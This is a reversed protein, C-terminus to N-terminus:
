PMGRGCCCAAPATSRVNVFMYCKARFFCPKGSRARIGQITPNASRMDAGGYPTKKDVYLFRLAAEPPRLLRLHCLPNHAPQRCRHQQKHARHSARQRIRRALDIRQIVIGQRLWACALVMIQHGAHVRPLAAGAVQAIGVAHKHDRQVHVGLAHHQGGERAFHQDLPRVPADPPKGVDGFVVAGLGQAFGDTRMEAGLHVFIDDEAHVM